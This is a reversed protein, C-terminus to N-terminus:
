PENRGSPMPINAKNGDKNFQMLGEPAMRGVEILAAYLVLSYQSPSLFVRDYEKSKSGNFAAGTFYKQNTSGPVGPFPQPILPESVPGLNM